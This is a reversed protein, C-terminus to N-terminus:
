ANPNILNELERDLEEQEEEKSFQVALDDEPEGGAGTTYEKRMVDVEWREFIQDVDSLIRANDPGANSLAAAQTDRSLLLNRRRKLENLRQEVKDLDSALKREVAVTESLQTKLDVQDKELRKMRRVCERSTDKDSEYVRKARETWAAKEKNANNLKTRLNDADKRVRNLQISIKSAATQVEEIACNAIAEHNELNNVLNDFSANMSIALKKLPRM